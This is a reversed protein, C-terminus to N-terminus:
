LDIEPTDNAIVRWRPDAPESSIKKGPSLPVPRYRRLSLWQALPAALDDKGVMELLYGARQLIPSAYQDMTAAWEEPRIKEALESLVTAVNSLGGAAATFRVLDLATAEPTSVRMTGTETQIRGTPLKAVSRSKHFTIRVRGVHVPRTARDTVVQFDMPQQHAAGYVAAASLLGVYYPQGLFGMLDDIFWSAPLCQAEKYELPVIAYFGRRPRAIRGRQKLRRLAAELAVASFRDSGMAEGRTFTYRGQAQLADVFATISQRKTLDTNDDMM